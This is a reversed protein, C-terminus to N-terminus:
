EELRPITTEVNGDELHSYSPNAFLNCLQIIEVQNLLNADIGCMIYKNCLENARNMLTEESDDDYINWIIHYFQREIVEGSLAFHNITDIGNKLIDKQAQTEATMYSDYMDDVLSSIDVPRSISLFKFPKNEASMETTLSHTITKKEASSLLDLAIPSVRIYAFIYGDKTYLINDKIDRINVFDNATQIKVEEENQKKSFLKM